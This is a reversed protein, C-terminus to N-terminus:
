QKGKGDENWGGKLKFHLAPSGVLFRKSIFKIM